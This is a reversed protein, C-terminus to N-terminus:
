FFEVKAVGSQQRADRNLQHRQQKSTQLVHREASTIM